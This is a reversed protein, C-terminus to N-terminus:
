CELIKEVIKIPDPIENIQFVRVTKLGKIQDRLPYYHNILNLPPVYVIRVDNFKTLHPFPNKGVTTELDSILCCIKKSDTRPTRELERHAEILATAIDTRGGSDISLIAEIINEVSEFRNFQKLFRTKSDFVLISLNEYRVAYCLLASVYTILHMYRYVSHSKDILLVLTVKKKERRISVISQYTPMKEARSLMKEMTQYLSWDMGPSYPIFKTENAKLSRFYMGQAKKLLEPFITSIIKKKLNEPLHKKVKFYLEVLDDQDLKEFLIGGANRVLTNSAVIPFQEAIINMVSIDGFDIAEKSYDALKHLDPQQARIEMAAELQIQIPDNSETDELQVRQKERESMLGTREEQGTIVSAVIDDIIAKKSLKIGPKLRVKGLLVRFGNKQWSFLNKDEELTMLITLQIAGRVSAGWDILRHERTKRVISVSNKVIKLDKCGTKQIVILIETEFDQHDFEIVCCRDYFASPLPELTVDQWIDGNCVFIAWFEEKGQIKGFQGHIVREEIATLVSNVTSAPARNTENFFFIGGQEAALTLAGPVFAEASFGQKMVIVPDFHGTLKVPDLDPHGDVRFVPAKAKECFWKVFETKGTGCPGTIVVPIKEHYSKWILEKEKERGIYSEM